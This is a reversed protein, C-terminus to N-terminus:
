LEMAEGSHPNQYVQPGGLRLLRLTEPIQNGPYQWLLLESHPNLALLLSPCLVGLHEVSHLSDELPRTMPPAPSGMSFAVSPGCYPHNNELHDEELLQSTSQPQIGQPFSCADLTRDPGQAERPDKQAGTPRGLEVPPQLIMSNRPGCCGPREQPRVSAPPEMWARRPPLPPTLASSQRASKPGVDSTPTWPGEPLQLGM